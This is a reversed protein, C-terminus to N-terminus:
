KKSKIKNMKATIQNYEVSNVEYKKLENEYKEIKQDDTLTLKVSSPAANIREEQLKSKAVNKEYNPDTYGTAPVAVFKETKKLQVTQDSSTESSKFSLHQPKNGNPENKLTVTPESESQQQSVGKVHQIEKINSKNQASIFICLFSGILLTYLKM